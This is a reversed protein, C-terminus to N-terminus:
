FTWTDKWIYWFLLVLCATYAIVFVVKFVKWATEPKRMCLLGILYVLLSLMTAGVRIIATYDFM